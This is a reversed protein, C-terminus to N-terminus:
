KISEIINDCEDYDVDQIFIVYIINDKTYNVVYQNDEQSLIAKTGNVTTESLNFENCPISISGMDNEDIYYHYSFFIYSKNKEFTFSNSFCNSDIKKNDINKLEFGKPLYFPIDPTYGNQQCQTKIGYPDDESVPIEITKKFNVPFYEEAIEIALTMINSENKTIDRLISDIALLVAIVSLVITAVKKLIAFKKKKNEVKIKDIMKEFTKDTDAKDSDDTQTCSESLKKTKPFEKITKQAIKYINKKLGRKIFIKHSNKQVLIFVEKTCKRADNKNKLYAHCLRYIDTYYKEAVIRM